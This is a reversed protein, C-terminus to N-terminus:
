GRNLRKTAVKTWHNEPKMDRATRLFSKALDSDGGEEAFRAARIFVFPSEVALAPLDRFYSLAENLDGKAAALEAKAVARINTQEKTVLSRDAKQLINEAQDVMGCRALWLALGYNISYQGSMDEPVDELLHNLKQRAEEIEGLAFHAKVAYINILFRNGPPALYFPEAKDLYELAKQFQGLQAFAFAYPFCFEQCFGESHVSEPAGHLCDIAAEYHGRQTLSRSRAAYVQGVHGIDELQQQLREWTADATDHDDTVAALQLIAVDVEKSMESNKPWPLSKFHLLIGLAQEFEGDALRKQYKYILWRRYFGYGSLNLAVALMGLELVM